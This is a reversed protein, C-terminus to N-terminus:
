GKFLDGYRARLDAKQVKGMANRPLEPLTFVRKPCKFKALQQVSFM